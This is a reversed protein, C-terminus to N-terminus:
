WELCTLESYLYDVQDPRLTSSRFMKPRSMGLAFSGPPAAGDLLRREVLTAAAGHRALMHSGLARTGAVFVRSNSVYLISVFIRVSKRTDRRYVVYCSEAGDVLVVQRAARATRHDEFIRRDDEGLHALMETPDTLVRVRSHPWPINVVLRATTDLETFKLRKNLAIVNGSPSLDTFHYGKQALLTTLLRLGQMRYAELVCWAGLNCVGESRGDISRVSYYALYAGVVADGDQLFFGCNPQEGRWHGGMADRWAAVGVRRNLHEHLFAAVRTTDPATIAVLEAAM